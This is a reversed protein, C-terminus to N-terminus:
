RSPLCNERVVRQAVQKRRKPNEADAQWREVSRKTVELIEAVEKPTKEKALLALDRARREAFQENTGKRRM